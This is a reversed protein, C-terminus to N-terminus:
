KGALRGLFDPLPCQNCIKPGAEAYLPCAKCTARAAVKAEESVNIKEKTLSLMVLADFKAGKPIEKVVRVKPTAIKGGAKNFMKSGARLITTTKWGRSVSISALKEQDDKSLKKLLSIVSLDFPLKKLNYLEQVGPALELLYLRAYITADSIGTKKSVADINGYQKVLREYARAEDVYGMSARQVNAVLAHTLRDAGNHNSAPRIVVEIEKIGAIQHARWRREGDILIYLDGAQEVVIPQILGNEKISVALGNLEDSDFVTRPQDPNPIISDVQLKTSQM